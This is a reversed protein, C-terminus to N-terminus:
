KLLATFVEIARDVDDDTLDLHTIIRLVQAGMPSVWVGQEKAAEALGAADYRHETLDLLVLNTRV